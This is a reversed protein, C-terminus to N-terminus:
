YSSHISCCMEEFVGLVRNLSRLMMSRELNNDSISQRDAPVFQCSESFASGSPVSLGMVPFVDGALRALCKFRESGFSRWWHLVDTVAKGPKDTIELYRAV